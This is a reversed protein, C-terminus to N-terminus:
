KQSQVLCDRVPFEQYEWRRLSLGLETVKVFQPIIEENRTLLVSVRTEMCPIESVKVEKFPIRPISVKTCLTEPEREKDNCRGPLHLYFAVKWLVCPVEKPWLINVTELLGFTIEVCLRRRKTLIKVCLKSPKCSLSWSHDIGVSEWFVGELGLHALRCSLCSDGKWCKDWIFGVRSLAPSVGKLAWFLRQISQPMSPSLLPRQDPDAGEPDWHRDVWGLRFLM